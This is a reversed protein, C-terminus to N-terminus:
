EYYGEGGPAPAPVNITIDPLKPLKPKPGKKRPTFEDDQYDSFM